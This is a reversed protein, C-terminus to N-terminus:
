LRAALARGGDYLGAQGWLERYLSLVQRQYGQGRDKSNALLDGFEDQIVLLSPHAALSSTVAAPSTFGRAGCREICGAENLVYQLAARSREKGCGTTGVSLGYVVPWNGYASRYRRAMVISGLMLSAQRAFVLSPQAAGALHFDFFEGLIGPPRMRERGQSDLRDALAMAEANLQKVERCSQSNNGGM